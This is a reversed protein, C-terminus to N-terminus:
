TVELIKHTGTVHRLTREVKSRHMGMENAIQRISKNQKRYEIVKETDVINKLRGLRKGNARAKRLGGKVHEAIIDRELKSIASIITFIAKGLPSSM